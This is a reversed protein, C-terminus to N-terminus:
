GDQEPLQSDAPAQKRQEAANTFGRREQGAFMAPMPACYIEFIGKRLNPLVRVYMGSQKATAAMQQAAERTPAEAELTYEVNDFTRVTPGFFGM